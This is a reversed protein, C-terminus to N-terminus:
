MNQTQKRAQRNLYWCPPNGHPFLSYVCSQTEPPAFMYETKGDKLRVAYTREVEVSGLVGASTLVRYKWWAFDVIYIAALLLLLALFIRKTRM